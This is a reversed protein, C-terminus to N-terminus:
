QSLLLIAAEWGAWEAYADPDSDIDEDTPANPGLITIVKGNYEVAVTAEPKVRITERITDVLDMLSDKWEVSTIDTLGLGYVFVFM